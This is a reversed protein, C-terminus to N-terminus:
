DVLQQDATKLPPLNLNQDAPSLVHILQHPSRCLETRESRTFFEKPCVEKPCSVISSNCGLSIGSFTIQLMASRSICSSTFIHLLSLVELCSCSITSTSQITMKSGRADQWSDPSFGVSISSHNVFVPGWCVSRYRRVQTWTTTSSPHKSCLCCVGLHTTRFLFVM